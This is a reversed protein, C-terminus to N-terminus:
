KELHFQSPVRNEPLFSSLFFEFFGFKQESTKKKVSAKLTRADDFLSCEQKQWMHCEKFKPYTRQFTFNWFMEKQPCCDLSFTLFELVNWNSSTNLGTLLWVQLHRDAFDWKTSFESKKSPFRQQVTERRQPPPPPCLFMGFLTKNSECRASLRFLFSNSHGTVQQRCNSFTTQSRLHLTYRVSFSM